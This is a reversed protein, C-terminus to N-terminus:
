QVSAHWNEFKWYREFFSMLMILLDVLLSREIRIVPALVASMVPKPAEGANASGEGTEEAAVSTRLMAVGTLAPAETAACL